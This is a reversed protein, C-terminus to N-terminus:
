PTKWKPDTDVIRAARAYGYLAEAARRARSRTSYAEGSEAVVKGNGATLRWRTGDAAQYVTIRPTRTNM